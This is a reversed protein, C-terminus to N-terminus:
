SGGGSDNGLGDVFEVARCAFDAVVLASWQAAVPSGVGEAMVKSLAKIGDGSDLLRMSALILASLHAIPIEISVIEKGDPMGDAKLEESEQIANMFLESCAVQIKLDSM